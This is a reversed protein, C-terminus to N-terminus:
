GGGRPRSAMEAQPNSGARRRLGGSQERVKLWVSRLQSVRLVGSLVLGGGIVGALVAFRLLVNDPVVFLAIAGGSLSILGVKGTTAFSPTFGSRMLVALLFTLVVGETALTAVAAGDFGLSPILWLNLGVNVALAVPLIRFLVWQKGMAMLVHGYVHSFWVLVITAALIRLSTTAPVFEDSGLVTLITGAFVILVTVAPLITLAVADQTEQMLRQAADRNGTELHRAIVPYASLAFYLGIPWAFDVFRYAVGYLGLAEKSQMKSLLVMDIRNYGLWIFLSLVLPLSETLLRKCTAVELRFNPVIFRRALVITIASGVLISADYALVIAVIGLGGATTAAALVIFVVGQTVSALTQYEMRLATAFVLGYTGSGLAAFLYSLSGLCIALTVEVSYNLLLAAGCVLVMAVLSMGVRVIVVNGLLSEKRPSVSLERIAISSIGGDSLNLLALFSLVLLYDGMRETGLSRALIILVAFSLVATLGRGALQAITNRAMRWRLASEVGAAAQRVDRESDDVPADFRVAPPEPPVPLTAMVAASSDGCAM